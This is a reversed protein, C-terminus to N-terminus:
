QSTSNVSCFKIPIFTHEVTTRASMLKRLGRSVLLKEFQIINYACLQYFCDMKAGYFESSFLSFFQYFM